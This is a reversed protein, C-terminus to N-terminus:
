LADRRIRLRSVLDELVERAAHNNVALEQQLDRCMMISKNIEEKRINRQNTVWDEHEPM